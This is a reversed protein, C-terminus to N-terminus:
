KKDWHVIAFFVNISVYIRKISVPIAVILYNGLLLLLIAELSGIGIEYFQQGM